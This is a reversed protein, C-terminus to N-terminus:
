WDEEWRINANLDGVVLKIDNSLCIDYSEKM